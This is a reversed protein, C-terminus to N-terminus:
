GPVPFAFEIYSLCALSEFVNVPGHSLVPLTGRPNRALMEPSHEDATRVQYDLAKEELVMHVIWSPPSCEVRRVTNFDPMYLTLTDDIMTAGQAVSAPM